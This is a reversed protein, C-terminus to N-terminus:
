RTCYSMKYKKYTPCKWPTRAQIEWKFMYRAIPSSGLRKTHIRYEKAIYPYQQNRRWWQTTSRTNQIFSIKKRNDLRKENGVYNAKSQSYILILIASQHLMMAYKMRTNQICSLKMFDVLREQTWKYAWQHFSPKRQPKRNTCFGQMIWVWQHSVM